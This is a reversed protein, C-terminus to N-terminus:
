SSTRSPSRNLERFIVHDSSPCSYTESVRARPISNKTRREALVLKSERRRSFKKRECASRDPVELLVMGEEEEDPKADADRKPPVVVGATISKVAESRSAPMCSIPSSLLGSSLCCCSISRKATALTMFLGCSEAVLELCRPEAEVPALM